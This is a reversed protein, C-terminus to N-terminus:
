HGSIGIENLYAELSSVFQSLGADTAAKVITRDGSVLRLKRGQGGVEEGVGILLNLDWIANAKASKAINCGTEVVRILVARYLELAGSARQRVCDTM